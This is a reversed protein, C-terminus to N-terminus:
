FGWVGCGVVFGTGSLFSGGGEVMLGWCLSKVFCSADVESAVLFDSAGQVEPLSCAGGREREEWSGLVSHVDGVREGERWGERKSYRAKESEGERGGQCFCM